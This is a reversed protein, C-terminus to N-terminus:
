PNKAPRGSARGSGAPTSKPAGAPAPADAHPVVIGRVQVDATASYRKGGAGTFQLTIPVSKGNVIDQRVGVLRLHSGKYALRTPADAPVPIRRAVKGPDTGDTAKVVVLEVRRAVPSTAGVLTLPADSRIDVYARADSGAAAPRMWASGLAIDVAQAPLAGCAFALAAVVSATRAFARRGDLPPITSHADPRPRVHLADAWGRAVCAPPPPDPCVHRDHDM